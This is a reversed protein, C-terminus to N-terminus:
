FPLPALRRRPSDSLAYLIEAQNQDKERFRERRGENQLRWFRETSVLLSVKWSWDYSHRWKDLVGQIVCPTRTQEFRIRFEEPSVQDIHIRELSDNSLSSYIKELCNSEAYKNKSWLYTPIDSREKSKAKKIKAEIKDPMANLNYEQSLGLLEVLSATDKVFRIQQEM